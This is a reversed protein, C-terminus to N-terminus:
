CLLGCVVRGAVAGARILNSSAPQGDLQQRRELERELDDFGGEDIWIGLAIGWFVTAIVSLATAIIGIVFGAQALGRQKKHTRGQGIARKGRLSYFIGLGGCVVSVISSLGFSTVLLGGSVLSLVFGAVASGNDQEGHVPATSPQSWAPQGGGNPYGPTATPETASWGAPRQSPGPAAFGQYSPQSTVPPADGVGDAPARSRAQTAPEGLEPERGAPRPPLFEPGEEPATV